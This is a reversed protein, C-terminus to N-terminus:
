DAAILTLVEAPMPLRAEVAPKTEGDAATGYLINELAALKDATVKTSDVTVTSLPKYGPVAVPTSNLEWSFTTADPSDNIPNYNRESPSATLGYVLHIKYGKDGNDHQDDGILTRYSMGFPKRPQQGFYVGKEAEVNGDCENFEEPYTYAGMNSGYTEAARLSAYKINDAFLDTADAGSPKETMETLGNFAVGKGYPDTESAVYLMGRDLGTEYLREGTADWVTKFAM